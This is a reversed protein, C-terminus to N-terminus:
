PLHSVFSRMERLIDQENSLFIYYNAHPLEVIRASPVGNRLDKVHRNYIAVDLDHQQKLAAMQEDNAPKYRLAQDELSPPEAFFALVPVRIRAFDAKKLGKFLGDRVKRPVRYDGMTGDPNVVYIQRLESEPFAWGGVRLQWARYAQLSSLDPAPPQRMAAPLKDGKPPEAGYDALRLTADEASNLYVLGAIRQPYEAGLINLDQGGFSHALMIPRKLRLSDLVKLVDSASEEASYGSDTMTSNGLGRRTIGYVHCIAALKPAFEDYAHVTLYGALLVCPRGDGGWDLVELRVGDGISVFQQVHPSPDKWGAPESAKSVTVVLALVFVGLRPLFRPPHGVCDTGRLSM